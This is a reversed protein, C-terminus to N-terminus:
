HIMVAVHEDMYKSMDGVLISAICGVIGFGLGIYYLQPFSRGFTEVTAIRLAEYKEPDTIQPLEAAVYDKFPVATLSGVLDTIAAVSTVGAGFAAPAVLKIARARVQTTFRNQLLTLAVSQSVGRIVFTLSTITALLDDPTIVTVIIQNPFLVGGVGILGIILPPWATDINHIDIAAMCGVGADSEM